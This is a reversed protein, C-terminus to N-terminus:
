ANKDACTSKVGDQPFTSAKKPDQIAKNLNQKAAKWEDKLWWSDGLKVIPDIDFKKFWEHSLAKMADPRDDPNKLLLYKTFALAERSYNGFAAPDYFPEENQIRDLMAVDRLGEGPRRPFAQKGTLMEYTASGLTFMDAKETIPNSLHGEPSRYEFSGRSISTRDPGELRGASGFDVLKVRSGEKDTRVTNAPKIDRHIVDASHIFVLAVLVDRIWGAVNREKEESPPAHVVYDQIDGGELYELILSPVENITQKRHFKMIFEFASDNLRQKLIELAKWENEQASRHAWEPKDQKVAVKERPEGDVIKRYVKLFTSFYVIYTDLQLNVHVDSLFGTGAKDLREYKVNESGSRDSATSSARSEWGTSHSHSNHAESLSESTTASRKTGRSTNESRAPM